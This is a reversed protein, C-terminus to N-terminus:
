PGPPFNYSESRFVAHIRTQPCSSISVPQEGFDPEMRGQVNRECWDLYHTM